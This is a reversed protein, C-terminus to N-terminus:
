SILKEIVRKFEAEEEELSEYANGIRTYKCGFVYTPVTNKSNHKKYIEVESKPIGTEEVATLTNDGTDLQWNYAIIDDQYEKTIDDFTQSIWKSASNKAGSFM